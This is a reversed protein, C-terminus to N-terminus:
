GFLVGLVKVRGIMFFKAGTGRKCTLEHIRLIDGQSLKNADVFDGWSGTLYCKNTRRLFIMPLPNWSADIFNPLDRRFAEEPNAFAELCIELSPSKNIYSLRSCEKMDNATLQRQYVERSEFNAPVPLPAAM